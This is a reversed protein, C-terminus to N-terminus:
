ASGWASPSRPTWPPWFAPSRVVTATALDVDGSVVTVIQLGTEGVLSILREYDLPRRTLRSTSYAVLVDAVGARLDALMGEYVPRKSRSRTSASTDNERYPERVQVWDHGNIFRLCDQEQREVGLNLELPDASIRSYVVARTTAMCRADATQALVSLRYLLWEVKRANSILSQSRWV